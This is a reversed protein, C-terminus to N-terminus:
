ISPNRLYCATPCQSGAASGLLVPDPAAPGPTSHTVYPIWSKSDSFSLLGASCRFNPLAQVSLSNMFIHKGSPFTDELKLLFVNRM